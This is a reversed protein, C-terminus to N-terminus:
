FKRFDTFIRYVTRVINWAVWFTLVILICVLVNYIDTMTREQYLFTADGATAVTETGVAAANFILNIMKTYIKLSSKVGKGINM